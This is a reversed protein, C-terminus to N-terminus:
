RALLRRGARALSVAVIVLAGAVLWPIAERGRPAVRVRLLRPESELLREGAGGELLLRAEYDGPVAVADPVVLLTVPAAAGIALTAIAAPRTEVRWGPPADASVRLASLARTGANRVTTAVRVTDGARAEAWGAALRLEARPVGRPVLAADVRAVLAGHAGTEGAGAGEANVAAGVIAFRLASDVRVGAGEERPLAVLVRLRKAREGLAFRVVSLRADSDAARVEGAVAPPLGEVVVRVAQVDDRLRELTVDYAAQAGLDAEQAPQALDLAVGVGSGGSELLIRREETRGGYDLAVVVDSADRVLRFTVRARTGSGLRPLMREYPTAIVVGDAGPSSKLSVFLRGTAQLALERALTSDLAALLAAADGDGAPAGALLLEVETAGGPLRRKRAREILVHPAADTTALAAQLLDVRARTRAAEREELEAASALGRARLERTRQWEASARDWEARARQLGLARYRDDRPNFLQAHADRALTGVHAAVLMVFMPVAIAARTMM